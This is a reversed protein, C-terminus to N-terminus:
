RTTQVHVGHGSHHAMYHTTGPTHHVHRSTHLMHHSTRPMHHMTHASGMSPGPKLRLLTHPSLRQWCSNPHARPTVAGARAIGHSGDAGHPPQATAIIPWM